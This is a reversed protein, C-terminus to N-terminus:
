SEISYVNLVRQDENFSNLNRTYTIAFMVTAQLTLFYYTNYILALAFSFMQDIYTKTM